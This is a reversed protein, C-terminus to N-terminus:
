VAGTPNLVMPESWPTIMTALPPLGTAPSISYNDTFDLGFAQMPVTVTAASVGTVAFSVTGTRALSMNGVRANNMQNENQHNKFLEPMTRSYKEPQSVFSGAKDFASMGTGYSRLQGMLTDGEFMWPAAGAQAARGDSALVGYTAAPGEALSATSKFGKTPNNMSLPGPVRDFGGKAATHDSFADLASRFQTQFDTFSKSFAGTQHQAVAALGEGASATLKAAENLLGRGLAAVQMRRNWNTDTRAQYEAYGINRGLIKANAQAAARALLLDQRAKNFMSSCYRSANCKLTHLQKAFATTVAALLRGAYRSGLVEATELTTDEDGFESLIQTERTWFVSSLRGQQREALALSRQAIAHLKTYSAVIENYNQLAIAGASITRLTATALVAGTRIGEGATYGVDGMCKLCALPM